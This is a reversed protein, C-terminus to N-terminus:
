GPAVCSALRKGNVTDIIDVFVPGSAQVASDIQDVKAHVLLHCRRSESFLVATHGEGIIRSPDRGDLTLGLDKASDFRLPVPSRGLLVLFVVFLTSLAALWGIMRDLKRQLIMDTEFSPLFLEIWCRNM